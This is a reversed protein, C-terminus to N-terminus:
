LLMDKVGMTTVVEFKTCQVYNIVFRYTTGMVISPVNYLTVGAAIILCIVSM